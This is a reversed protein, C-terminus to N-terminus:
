EIVYVPYETLVLDGGKYSSENGYIDKVTANECDLKITQTYDTPDTNRKMETAWCVYGKQGKRNIYGYVFVNPNKMDVKGTWKCNDLEKIMNAFACIAPKPLGNNLVLGFNHESYYINNGDNRLDYYFIREAGANLHVVYDRVILASQFRPTCYEPVGKDKLIM